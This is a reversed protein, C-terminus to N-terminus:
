EEIIINISNQKLKASKINSNSTNLVIDLNGSKSSSITSYDATIEFDSTDVSKYNNLSTYYSVPIKKPFFNISIGEPINIIRVPISLTGETFKEVDISVEVDKTSLKLNNNLDSLLLPLQQKTNKNLNKEVITKTEIFNVTKIIQEPGILNVSDPKIQLGFYSDFGTAYSINANLKIPVLKSSMKQFEFVVSDPQITFVEFDNSLISELKYKNDNPMWLYNTKSTIVDKEADLVLEATKFFYPLFNYGTSQAKVTLISDSTVIINSDPVNVIKIKFKLDKDYVKSLKTLILFLFALAIFLILQKVQKTNLIRKISKM